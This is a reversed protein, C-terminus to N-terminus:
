GAGFVRASANEQALRYVAVLLREGLTMVAAAREIVATEDTEGRSLSALQALEGAAVPELGEALTLLDDDTVTWGAERLAELARDAARGASSGPYVQWGRRSVLAAIASSPVSDSQPVDGLYRRIAAEQMTGLTHHVPARSDVAACVARVDALPLGAVDVLSRILRLRRLHIDGYDAQTAATAQGRLLLGERLYFKITATPVGTERSLESIRV